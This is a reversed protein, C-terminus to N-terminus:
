DLLEAEARKILNQLLQFDEQMLEDKVPMVLEKLRNVSKAYYHKEKKLSAPNNRIKPDEIRRSYMIVSKYENTIYKMTRRDVIDSYFERYVSYDAAASNAETMVEKILQKLGGKTMKM